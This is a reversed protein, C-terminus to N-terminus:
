LEDTLVEAHGPSISYRRRDAPAAVDDVDLIGTIAQQELWERTYREATGTHEALGASTQGGHQALARYYGLRDGIYVTLMDMAGVTAAFLRGSLADATSTTETMKETRGLPLRWQSADVVSMCGHRVSTGLDARVVPWLCRIGCHRAPT